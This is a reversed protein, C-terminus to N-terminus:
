REETWSFAKIGRSEREEISNANLNLVYDARVRDHRELFEIQTEAPTPRVFVYGGRPGSKPVSAAELVGESETVVHHEGLRTPVGFLNCILRRAEEQIPEIGTGGGLGM